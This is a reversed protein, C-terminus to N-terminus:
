LKMVNSDVLKREDSPVDDLKEEDTMPKDESWQVEFNKAEGM